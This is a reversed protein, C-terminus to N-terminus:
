HEKRNMNHHGGKDSRTKGGAKRKSIRGGKAGAIKALEPNSAFGGTHGNRGGKAGIECYFNRGNKREKAEDIIAQADACFNAFALKIEDLADQITKDDAKSM